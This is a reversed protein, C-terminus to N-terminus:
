GVLMYLSLSIYIYIYIQQLTLFQDLIQPTLFQDFDLTLFQDLNKKVTKGWKYLTKPTNKFVCITDCQALITNKHLIKPIDFILNEFLFNCKKNKEKKVNSFYFCFFSFFPFHFLGVFGIFITNKLTTM